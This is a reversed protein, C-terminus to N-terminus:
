LFNIIYKNLDNYVRRNCSELQKRTEEFEFDQYKCNIPPPCIQCKIPPPCVVLPPCSVPPIPPCVVPPPCIKQPPPPPCHTVSTNEIKGVPHSQFWNSLVFSSNKLGQSRSQIFADRDKIYYFSQILNSSIFDNQLQFNRVINELLGNQNELAATHNQLMTRQLQMDNLQTTLRAIEAQSIQNENTRSMLQEQCDDLDQNQGRLISPAQHFKKNLIYYWM